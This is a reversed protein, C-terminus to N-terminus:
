SRKSRTTYKFDPSDESPHSGGGSRIRQGASESKPKRKGKPVYKGRFENDGRFPNFRSDQPGRNFPNKDSPGKQSRKVRPM